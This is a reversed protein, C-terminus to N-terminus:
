NKVIVETGIDVYDYLKQVDKRTMRLCGHSAARGISTIEKTEHFGVEGRSDKVFGIWRSGMPNSPGAPM